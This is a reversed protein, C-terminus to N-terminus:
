SFFLEQFKWFPEQEELVVGPSDEPFMNGTFTVWRCLLTILMENVGNWGDKFLLSGLFHIDINCLQEENGSSKSQFSAWAEKRLSNQASYVVSKRLSAKYFGSIRVWFFIKPYIKKSFVRFPVDPLDYYRKRKEKKLPLSLNVFVIVPIFSTM